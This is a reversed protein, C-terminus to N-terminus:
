VCVPQRYRPSLGYVSNHRQGRRTVLILAKGTLASLVHGRYLLANRRVHVRRLGRYCFHFVMTKRVLARFISGFVRLVRHLLGAPKTDDSTQQRTGNGRIQIFCIKGGFKPSPTSTSPFGFFRDSKKDGSGEETTHSSCM